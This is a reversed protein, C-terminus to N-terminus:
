AVEEGRVCLCVGEIGVGDKVSKCGVIERGTCRVLASDDGTLCFPCAVSVWIVSVPYLDSDWESDQSVCSPVTELDNGRDTSTTVGALLVESM